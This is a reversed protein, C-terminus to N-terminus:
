KHRLANVHPMIKMYLEKAGNIILKGYLAACLCIIVASIIYCYPLEFTIILAEAVLLIYVAADRVINIKLKIISRITVLRIVWVTCFSIMTALAAGFIGMYDILVFNLITNIVAGACVSVFLGSTKKAARFAGALFGSLGSFVYSILLMPVCKWAEFFENSYLIRGFLKATIILFSCLMVNAINFYNYTTTHFESNDKENVNDIAALTWASTFLSSVMNIVSPIKYAVSYIGSAAIGIKAIIIYKDLSVNIFWAISAPITPISYKLMDALLKKNIKFHKIDKYQKCSIILFITAIYDGLAVSLLYANLRGRLALLGILNSSIIVVTQIVGSVAFPKTHGCGKAYQAFIVHINYGAYIIVFWIWFKYIDSSYIRVAPTAAILIVVSIGVMLLSNSLVENKKVNSDFAFRLTAEMVALTLIPYMLNITNTILDSIGYEETTLVATYLPILLFVLVKSAFNSITFAVTDSLLRKYKGM